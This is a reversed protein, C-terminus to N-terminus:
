YGICLLVGLIIESIILTFFILFFLKKKNIKVKNEVLRYRTGYSKIKIKEM